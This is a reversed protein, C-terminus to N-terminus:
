PQVLTLGVGDEVGGDPDDHPRVLRLGAGELIPHGSFGERLDPLM